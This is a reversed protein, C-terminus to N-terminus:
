KPDNSGNVKKEKNFLKNKIKKFLTPSNKFGILGDFLIAASAIAFLANNAKDVNMENNKIKEDAYVIAQKKFIDKATANLPEHDRNRKMMDLMVLATDIFQETESTTRASRAHPKDDEDKPKKDGKNLIIDCLKAKSMRELSNLKYTSYPQAMKALEKGPLKMLENRNLVNSEEELEEGMDMYNDNGISM